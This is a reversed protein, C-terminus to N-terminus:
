YELVSVRSTTALSDGVAYVADQMWDGTIYHSSGSGTLMVGNSAVAPYKYALWIPGGSNLTIEFGMRPKPKVRRWIVYANNTADGNLHDPMDGTDVCNTIALDSANWYLRSTHSTSRVMDGSKYSGDDEWDRARVNREAMICINTNSVDFGAPRTPENGGAFALGLVLALGLVPLLHKWTIRHNM